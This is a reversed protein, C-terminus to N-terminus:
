DFCKMVELMFPSLVERAMCLGVCCTHVNELMGNVHAPAVEGLVIVKCIEIEPYCM